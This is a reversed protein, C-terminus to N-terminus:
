RLSEIRWSFEDVLHKTWVNQIYVIEGKKNIFWTTPFSNIGVRKLYGDDYLVAFSYSNDKMWSIVKEQNPDNNITLIKVEPDNMYKEHLLQFEPMEKVCWGCWIGWMNIVTIKGQLDNSSVSDGTTSKLHFEDLKKPDIIRSMLIENRKGEQIKQLQTEYYKTNGDIQLCLTKLADDNPNETPTNLKIGEAYFSKAEDYDKRQEYLYGLHYLANVNEPYLERAYLLNKESVDQKGNKLQAWGLADYINTIFGGVCYNKEVEKRSYSDPLERKVYQYYREISEKGLEEARDYAGAKDVMTNIIDAFYYNDTDETYVYCKELAKMLLDKDITSDAKYSTYLDRYTEQALGSHFLQPQNVYDLLMRRYEPSTEWGAKKSDYMEKKFRRIKEVRVWEAESTHPFKKLITKGIRNQKEPIDLGYNGYIDSARLLASPHNKNRKIYPKLDAEIFKIKEEQSVDKQKLIAQWLYNHLWVSNPSFKLAKHMLELDGEDHKMLQWYANICSSDLLVAQHLISDAQTQIKPDPDEWWNSKSKVAKSKLVLLEAPNPVKNLNMDIFTFAEDIRSTMMLAKAHMWIIDPNTPDLALMKESASFAEERFRASAGPYGIVMNPLESYAEIIIFYGWPSNPHERAMTQGVVLVEDVVHYHNALHNLEYWARLELSDPYTKIFAKGRLYGEEFDRLFYSQKLFDVAQSYKIQNNSQCSLLLSTLIVFTLKSKM